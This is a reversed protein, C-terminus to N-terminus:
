CMMLTYIYMPMVQVHVHLFEPDTKHNKGGTLIILIGHVDRVSVRERERERERERPKQRISVHMRVYTGGAPIHWVCVGALMGIWIYHMRSLWHMLGVGWMCM